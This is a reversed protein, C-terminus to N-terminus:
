RFTDTLESALPSLAIETGAVIAQQTEKLAIELQEVVSQCRSAVDVAEYRDDPKAFLQYTPEDALSARLHWAHTRIAREDAAVLLVRDRSIPAYAESTSLLTYLDRSESLGLQREGAHCQQPFRVLLPVHVLDALLAERVPGVMRQQGLPYGRPSTLVLLAQEGLPGEEFQAFLSELAEDMAMVQAAYAQSYALLEDPDYDDPLSLLPPAIFEPLEPDEEDRLHERLSLPADWAGGLGRAHLWLVFPARVSALQEMATAVLQAFQTDEVQEAATMPEHRSQVLLCENFHAAVPLEAVTADDTVLLTQRGEAQWRQPLAVADTIPQLPHEGRWFSRYADSLRPSTAFHFESLLAQSALRNIAPTEVWTNGYPGLFGANLRDVVVVVINPSQSM